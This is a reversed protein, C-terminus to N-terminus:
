RLCALAVIKSSVVVSIDIERGYCVRATGKGLDIDIDKFGLFVGDIPHLAKFVAEKVSFIAHAELPSWSESSRERETAIVEILEPPLAVAPEIDIGLSVLKGTRAVVAVAIQDDHALSGTLGAPWAPSQNHFRPLFISHYGLENALRRAVIRVAGSQRRVSTVSKYFAETEDHQLAYEDGERIVRHGVRLDFDSFRKVVDSLLFGLSANLGRDHDPRSERRDRRSGGIIM